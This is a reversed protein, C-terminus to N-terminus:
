VYRFSQLEAVTAKLATIEAELKAVKAVMENSDMPSDTTGSLDIVARNSNPTVVPHPVQRSEQFLGPYAEKLWLWVHDEAPKLFPLAQEYDKLEERHEKQEDLMGQFVEDLKRYVDSQFVICNGNFKVRKGHLNHNNEFFSAKKDAIQALEWVEHFIERTSRDVPDKYASGVQNMGLPKEGGPAYQRPRSSKRTSRRIPPM